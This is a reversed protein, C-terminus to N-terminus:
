PRFTACHYFPSDSSSRQSTQAIGTRYQHKIRGSRITYMRTYCLEKQDKLSAFKLCVSDWGMLLSIKLNKCFSYSRYFDEFIPSEFLTSCVFSAESQELSTEKSTFYILTLWHINVSRSFFYCCRCFFYKNPHM